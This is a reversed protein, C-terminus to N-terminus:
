VDQIGEEIGMYPLYQMEEAISVACDGCVTVCKAADVGAICRSWVDITHRNEGGNMVGRVGEILGYVGQGEVVQCDSM